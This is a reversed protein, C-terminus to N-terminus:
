CSRWCRAFIFGNGRYSKIKRGYWNFLEKNNEKIMELEDYIYNYVPYIKRMYEIEDTKIRHKWKKSLWFKSERTACVHHIICNKKYVYSNFKKSILKRYKCSTNLASMDIYCFYKKSTCLECARKLMGTERIKKMNLLMVGSQFYHTIRGRDRRGAVECNSVDIDWLNKIDGNFITDADLYIVKDPVEPVLHALLRVTVYYSYYKNNINPGFLLYKRFLNSVDISKYSSNPNAAKLISECLKDERETFKKGKSNFEPIEVTFNIINLPEKTYHVLSILSVLQQTLLKKDVCYLLNIM